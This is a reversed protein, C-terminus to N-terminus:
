ATLKRLGDAVAHLDDAEQPTLGGSGQGLAAVAAAVQSLVSSIANLNTAVNSMQGDLSAQWQKRAVEWQSPGVGITTGNPGNIQLTGTCIAYIADSVFTDMATVGDPSWQGWDFVVSEDLDVSAGGVTVGNHLQKLALGSAWLGGSWAYTQWRFDTFAKVDTDACVRYGSYVGSRWGYTRCLITWRAVYARVEPLDAEQVDFDVAVYLCVHQPVGLANAHFRAVYFDNDAQDRGGLASRPNFEYVIGVDLGAEHALDIDMLSLNKGTDDQSVYGIIFTYGQTKAEGPSAKAWDEDLGKPM